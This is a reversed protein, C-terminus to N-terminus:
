LDSAEMTCIMIPLMHDSNFLRTQGGKDPYIMDLRLECMKTHGVFNSTAMYIRMYIYIYINYKYIGELWM